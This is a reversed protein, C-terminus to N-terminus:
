RSLDATGEVIYHDVCFRTTFSRLAEHLSRARDLAISDPLDRIMAGVEDVNSGTLRPLEVCMESCLPWWDGPETTLASSSCLAQWIRWTSYSSVLSHAVYLTTKAANMRDILPPGYLTCLDIHIHGRLRSLLDHRRGVMSGAFLSDHNKRRDWEPTGMVPDWGVPLLFGDLGTADSISEVMRPTHAFFGDLHESVAQFTQWDRFHDYLMVAPDCDLAESYVPLVLAMRDRPLVSETLGGHAWHMFVVNDDRMQALASGFLDPSIVDLWRYDRALKSYCSYIDVFPGNTNPIVALYRRGTVPHQDTM